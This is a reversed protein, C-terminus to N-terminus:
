ERGIEAPTEDDRPWCSTSWPSSSRGLGLGAASLQCCGVYIVKCSLCPGCVQLGLEGTSLAAGVNQHPSLATAEGGGAERREAQTVLGPGPVPGAHVNNLPSRFLQANGVTIDCLRGLDAGELSGRFSSTKPFTCRHPGSHSLGSGCGLLLSFSDGVRM